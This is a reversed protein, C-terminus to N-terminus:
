DRHDRIRGEFSQGEESAKFEIFAQQKDIAERKQKVAEELQESRADAADEGEALGEASNADLNTPDKSEEAAAVSPDRKGSM